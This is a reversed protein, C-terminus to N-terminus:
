GAGGVWLRGGTAPGRTAGPSELMVAVLSVVGAVVVALVAPRACMHKRMAQVTPRSRRERLRHDLFSVYTDRTARGGFTRIQGSPARQPRAKLPRRQQRCHRRGCPSQAGM